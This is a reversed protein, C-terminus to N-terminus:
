AEENNSTQQVSKGPKRFSRRVSTLQVLTKLCELLWALSGFDAANTATLLSLVRFIMLAALQHPTKSRSSAPDDAVGRHVEAVLRLMSFHVDTKEVDRNNLKALTDL